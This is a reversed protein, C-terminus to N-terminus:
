VQKLIRHRIFFDVATPLFKSTELRIKNVDLFDFFSQCDEDIDTIVVAPPWCNTCVLELAEDVGAILSVKYGLSQLAEIMQRCLVNNADVYSVLWVEKNERVINM